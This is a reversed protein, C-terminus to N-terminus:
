VLNHLSEAQSRSKIRRSIKDRLKRYDDKNKLHDYLWQRSVGDVEFEECIENFDKLKYNVLESMEGEHDIVRDLSGGYSQIIVHWVAHRTEEHTANFYLKAISRYKSWTKLLMSAAMWYVIIDLTRDLKEEEIYTREDDREEFFHDKDYNLDLGTRIGTKM